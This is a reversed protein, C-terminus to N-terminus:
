PKAERQLEQALLAAVIYHQPQAHDSWWWSGHYNEDPASGGQVLSRAHFWDLRHAHWDAKPTNEAAKVAEDRLRFALDCRQREWWGQKSPRDPDGPVMEDATRILSKWAGDAYRDFVLDILAQEDDLLKLLEEIKPNM